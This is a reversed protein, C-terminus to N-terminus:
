KGKKRRLGIEKERTLNDLYGKQSITEALNEGEPTYECCQVRPTPLPQYKKSRKERFYETRNSNRRASLGRLKERRKTRGGRVKIRLVQRKKGRKIENTPM